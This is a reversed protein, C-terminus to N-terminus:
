LYCYFNSTPTMLMDANKLRVGDGTTSILRNYCWVTNIAVFIYVEIRQIRSVSWGRKQANTKGLDHLLLTFLRIFGKSGFQGAHEDAAKRLRKLVGALMQLLGVSSSLVSALYYSSIGWWQDRKRKIAENAIDYLARVVGPNKVCDKVISQRYLLEEPKDLSALVARRGVERIFENGNSMANFLTNLELDQTLVQEHPTIKKKSDFDHDEYMLYVKM